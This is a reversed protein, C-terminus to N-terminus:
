RESKRPSDPAVLLQSMTGLVTANRQWRKARKADARTHDTGLVGKELCITALTNVVRVLSESDVLWELQEFLDENKMVRDGKNEPCPVHTSEYYDRWFKMDCYPCTVTLTKNM